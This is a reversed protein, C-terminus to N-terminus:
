IFKLSCTAVGSSWSLSCYLFPILVSVHNYFFLVIDWFNRSCGWFKGFKWLITSSLSLYFSSRWLNINLVETWSFRYTILATIINWLRTESLWISQWHDMELWAHLFWNCASMWLLWFIRLITKFTITLVYFCYHLLSKCSLFFLESESMLCFHFVQFSNHHLISCIKYSFWHLFKKLNNRFIMSLKSSLECMEFSFCQIDHIPHIIVITM